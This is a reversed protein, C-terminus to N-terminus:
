STHELRAQLRQVEDLERYYGPQQVLDAHTGSQTIRGDQLVIIRDAHRLSSVRHSIILTTCSTVVPKLRAQIAAETQTDIASFVDDLILVGPKRALARSIATRQRQGGSLTVGREGLMTDFRKPFGEVDTHLEALEAATFVKELDTEELGLAINNALTDSFLFAEQPAIGVLRRLADLPITRIDQGDIRVVGETPDLVRAILWALVTKGSGTPGTIGLTEGAPISLSIQELVRVGGLELSVGDFEVTVKQHDVRKLETFQEEDCIAPQATRISQIRGWSAKGRQLLNITWGLALMPWQLFFLYQSFQVFQGVTMRDAIVERGGIWMILVVGISFLMGMGPWLPREVRNLAMKLDIYRANLRAFFGQQRDEIGYGRVTRIGGFNEQCFNSIISFQEQSQEYRERIIKLLLFFLLSTSPLLFLMVLAMRVNIYFMISFALIFGVATRTGQLIGQGVFERVANLDSTMKTMLDGTRERSYFTYDLRSLHQFVDRRIEYEIQHGLSLLIQRMGLALGASCLAAVVYLVAYMLIMPWRVVDSVLEDVAYRTIFPSLVSIAVSACVLAIGNIVRPRHARVYESLSKSSSSQM